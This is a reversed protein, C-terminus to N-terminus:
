GRKDNQAFRLVGRRGTESGVTMEFGAATPHSRQGMAGKAIFDRRWETDKAFHFGGYKGWERGAWDAQEGRSGITTIFGCWFV